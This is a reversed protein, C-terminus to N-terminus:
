NTYKIGMHLMIIICGKDAPKSVNERLDLAIIFNFEQIM